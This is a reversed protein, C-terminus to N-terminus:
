EGGSITLIESTIFTNKACLYFILDAVEMPEAFRKLPILKKRDELNKPIRYIFKTDTVGPRVTNVLVNYPAGERALSKTIAELGRKSAGYFMSGIGSGYKAGISSINVIHGRRRKKMNTLVAEAILAPVITNVLFTNQVHAIRNKSTSSVDYIGANNILADLSYKKVHKLFATVDSTKNFDAKLLQLADHHYRKQLNKLEQSSSHYHGVVKWGELLFKKVLALGIGSGAGTILVSKIKEASKM